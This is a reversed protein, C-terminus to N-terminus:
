RLLKLHPIFETVIKKIALYLNMLQREVDLSRPTELYVKRKKGGVKEKRKFRALCSPWWVVHM